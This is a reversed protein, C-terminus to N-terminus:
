RVTRKYMDFVREYMDYMFDLLLFVCVCVSCMPMKMHGFFDGVKHRWKTHVTCYLATRM